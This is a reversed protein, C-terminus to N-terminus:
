FKTIKEESDERATGEAQFESERARWMGPEEQEDSIVEESCSEM